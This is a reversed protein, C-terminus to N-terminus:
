RGFPGVSNPEGSDSRSPAPSHEEILMPKSSSRDMATCMAKHIRAGGEPRMEMYMSAAQVSSTLPSSLRWACAQLRCLHPPLPHLEDGHIHEMSWDGHVHLHPLPHLLHLQELQGWFGPGRRPRDSAAAADSVMVSCESIRIWFLLSKTTSACQCQYNPCQLRVVKYRSTLLEVIGLAPIAPVPARKAATKPMNIYMAIEKVHDNGRRWVLLKKFDSGPNHKRGQEQCSQAHPSCRDPLAPLFRRFSLWRKLMSTTSRESPCAICPPRFSWLQQASANWPRERMYMQVSM